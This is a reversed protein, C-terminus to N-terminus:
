LHNERKRAPGFCLVYYLSIDITGIEYSIYSLYKRCEWESFTSIRTQEATAFYKQLLAFLIKYANM